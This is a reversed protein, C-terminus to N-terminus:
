EGGGVGYASSPVAAVVVGESISLVVAGEPLEVAGSEVEDSGVSESEIADDESSAVNFVAVVYETTDAESPYLCRLRGDDYEVRGDASFEVRTLPEVATDVVELETM